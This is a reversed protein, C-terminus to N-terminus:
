QPVGVHHDTAPQRELLAVVEEFKLPRYAEAYLPRGDAAWRAVADVGVDMLRGDTVLLDGHSHGFLHLAGHNSNRWTRHAYHSLWLRQKEHRLYKVDQVSAARSGLAESTRDHNGLVINIHGNLRRLWADIPQKSRFAVDGLHWVTDGPQVNANWNEILAENMEAVNAFPRHSHEIIKAHDFHTDATFWLTM